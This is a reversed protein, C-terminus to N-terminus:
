DYIKNDTCKCSKSVQDYIMEALPCTVPSTKAADNNSSNSSNSNNDNWVIRFCSGKFSFFNPPCKTSNLVCKKDM